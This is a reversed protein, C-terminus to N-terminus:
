VHVRVYWVVRCLFTAAASSTQSEVVASIGNEAVVDVVDHFGDLVAGRHETCMGPINRLPM